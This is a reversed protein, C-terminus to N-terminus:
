GVAIHVLHQDAGDGIPEVGVAFIFPSLEPKVFLRLSPGMKWSIRPSVACTGSSAPFSVPLIFDDLAYTDTYSVFQYYTTAASASYAAVHVSTAAGGLRVRWFGGTPPRDM